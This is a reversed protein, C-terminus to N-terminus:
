WVEFRNAAERYVLRSSRFRGAVLDIERGYAGTQIVPGPNQPMAYSLTMRGEALMLFTGNLSDPVAGRVTFVATAGLPVNHPESTQLTVRGRIRDLALGAIPRFESSGIVATFIVLDGEPDTVRLFWRRGFVSWVVEAQHTAGDLTPTFRTPGTPNPQFTFTQM